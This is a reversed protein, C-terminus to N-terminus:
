DLVWVGVDRGLPTLAFILIALSLLTGVVLWIRMRVSLFRYCFSWVTVGAVTTAGSMTFGLAVTYLGPVGLLFAPVVLLWEPVGRDVLSQYAVGRWLYPVPGIVVYSAVIWLQACVVALALLEFPGKVGTAREAAPMMSSVM